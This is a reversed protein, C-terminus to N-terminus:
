GSNKPLPYFDFVHVLLWVQVRGNDPDPEGLRIEEISMLPLQLPLETKRRPPDLTLTKGLFKFETTM